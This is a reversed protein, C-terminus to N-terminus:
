YSGIARALFSDDFFKEPAETIDLLKLYVAV